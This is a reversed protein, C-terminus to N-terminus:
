SDYTVKNRVYIWTLEKFLDIDQSKGNYWQPTEDIYSWRWLCQAKLM